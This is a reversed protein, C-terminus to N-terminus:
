WGWLLAVLQMSPLPWAATPPRRVKELIALADTVRGSQAYAHSLVADASTEYSEARELQYARELLLIAKPLEGKCLYIDGILRHVVAEAYPTILRKLLDSRKKEM